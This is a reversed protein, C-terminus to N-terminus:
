GREMGPQRTKITWPVDYGATHNYPEGPLNYPVPFYVTVVRKNGYDSYMVSSVDAESQKPLFTVTTGGQWEADTGAGAGADADEGLIAHHPTNSFVRRVTVVGRSKAAAAATTASEIARPQFLVGMEFSKIYLKKTKQQQVGWAAQSLNCSTLMFWLLETQRNTNQFYQCYSKIHPPHHKRGSITGDYKYLSDRFHPALVAGGNIDGDAAKQANFKANKKKDNANMSASNPDTCIYIMEPAVPISNGTSYSARSYRVTNVTPYVLRLQVHQLWRLDPISDTGADAGTGSLRLGSVVERLWRGQSGMSAISSVQVSFVSNNIGSVQPPSPTSLAFERQVARYGYLHPVAEQERAQKQKQVQQQPSNEHKGPVSPILSVEATSYDYLRLRAILRRMDERPKTLTNHINGGVLRLHEKKLTLLGYRGAVGHMFIPLTKYLTFLNDGYVM